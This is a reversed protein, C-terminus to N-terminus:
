GWDTYHKGGYENTTNTDKKVRIRSGRKDMKYSRTITAKCDRCIWCFGHKLYVEASGCSPCKGEAKIAEGKKYYDRCRSRPTRYEKVCIKKRVRWNKCTLCLNDIM